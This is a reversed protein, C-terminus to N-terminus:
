SHSILVTGEVACVSVLVGRNICVSNNVYGIGLCDRATYYLLVTVCNQSHDPIAVQPQPNRMNQNILM